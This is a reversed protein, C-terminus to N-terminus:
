ILNVWNVLIELLELLQYRVYDEVKRLMEQFNGNGSRTWKPIKRFIVIFEANLNIKLVNLFKRRHEEYCM